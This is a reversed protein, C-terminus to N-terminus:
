KIHTLNSFRSAREAVVASPHGIEAPANYLVYFEFDNPQRGFQKAFAACRRNMIKQAVALADQQRYYDMGPRCNLRWEHQDIQYRSIEGAAGYARDDDGTELMSLAHWRSLASASMAVFLLVTMLLYKM